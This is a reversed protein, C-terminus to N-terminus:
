KNEKKKKDDDKKKDDEKLGLVRKMQKELYAKGVNKAAPIVVDKMAANAFKRGRSVQQPNLRAYEIELRKRDIAARLEQDSMESVSKPQAARKGIEISRSITKAAFRISKDRVEPSASGWTKKLNATNEKLLEKGSKNTPPGNKGYRIRGAPTLSGDKNQFLRVGWKQGKRGYHILVDNEM